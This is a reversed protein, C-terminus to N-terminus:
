GVVGLYLTSGNVRVQVVGVIPSDGAANFNGTWFSSGGSYVTATTTVTGGVQLNAGSVGLGSLFSQTGAGTWVALKNSSGAGTIGTSPTAWTGDGRLFTSSSATGSGLRATGVTGTTIDGGDLASITTTTHTHSSDVGGLAALAAAASTAGTGGRAISLTGSTENVIDVLSWTQDGHLTTTASATGSGLRATGITGTTIDGGDLNSITATTHTHTNDVGGLAALAAAATTQGTGGRAIPLTGTAIDSASIAGWTQDGFLVTAASATGSGLRATAMTGSTIDTAAHTHSPLDSGTAISLVGTSTTNKLIGTALSGLAQEASLGSSAQQVIYKADDPAASIDAPAITSIAQWSQDGRLFTISSATGSGLRATGLVGSVIDSADLNSITATTHVHTNDVGGLAALAAAATTQGTGGNAIPLTGTPGSGLAVAAWSGDGRLFTTGSPTGSGLRAVAVTGSAIDSGAHTHSAAAYDTGSVADVLTTGAAGWKIVAGATGSSGAVTTGGGSSGIGAGTGLDVNGGGTNDINGGGTNITGTNAHGTGGRSPQLTGGSWAGSDTLGSGGHTPQLAGGSYSGNDTNLTRSRVHSVAARSIAATRDSTDTAAGGIPEAMWADLADVNDPELTVSAGSAGVSVRVRAVYKRTITAIAGAPADDGLVDQVQAMADPRVDWPQVINGYTDRIEGTRASEYYTIVSPTAGAWVRVDFIGGERVGWALRQHSSNGIALLKEIKERYPTDPDIYITENVGTAVISGATFLNNTANYSTLLSAIQTNTATLTTKDTNGTLLWDLLYYRGCFTLKVELADGSGGGGSDLAPAPFAIMALGTQARTAAAAATTGSLNLLRDKTGYLAISAASTYSTTVDQDDTSGVAQYRVKLRNAMDKISLSLTLPGIRVEIDTLLGDWVTEGEPNSAICQRMLQDARAWDLAEDVSAPTFPVSLTEYGGRATASFECSAAPITQPQNTTPAGNAGRAFVSITLPIPM